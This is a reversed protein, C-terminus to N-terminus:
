RVYLAHVAAAFRQTTRPEGRNEMWFEGALEIARELSRGRPVFAVLKGRKGPTADLFGAETATLRM